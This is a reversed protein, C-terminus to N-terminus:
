KSLHKDIISEFLPVLQMSGLKTLHSEDFYFPIGDTDTILCFNNPCLSELPSFIYDTTINVTSSLAYFSDLYKIYEEQSLSSFKTQNGQLSREYLIKPVKDDYHPIPAILYVPVNKKTFSTILEKLRSSKLENSFINSYHLIVGEVDKELVREILSSIEISNNFTDDSVTFLIGVDNKKAIAAFDDKIADAHSNGLLLLNSSGKFDNIFCSDELINKLRFLKGCRFVNRQESANYIHMKASHVNQTINSFVVILIILGSLSFFLPKLGNIVLSLNKEIFFYFAVSFISILLTILFLDAFSEYGLIAPEFPEYNYFVIVPFHVLYLSFSINGIKVITKSFINHLFNNPIRFFILLSTLLCVILVGISPHGFFLSRSSEQVPFTFIIILLFAFLTLFISNLMVNNQHNFSKVKLLVLSAGLYFEWFRLPMMFFSTKPSVLNFLICLVLSGLAIFLVIAKNKNNLFFIFPALLYFQFEVGISWLHLLPTFYLLNYYDTLSWFYLNNSLLASFIAQESVQLSESPLLFIFSYLLVFINIALFPFALRKIRSLYFEKISRKAAINAMLFGSIVFFIDVGWFGNTFGPIKLHYFIVLLISIGRLFEIDDRKQFLM